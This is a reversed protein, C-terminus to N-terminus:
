SQPMAHPLVSGAADPIVPRGEALNVLRAFAYITSRRGKGPRLVTLIGQDVLADLARQVSGRAIGLGAAFDPGSAIPREFLRDLMPLAHARTAKAVAPKMAEYLDLISRAVKSNARAQEAIGTLFFRIWANWDGARSIAQLREYYVDRQRELYSSLYFDPSALVQKDFLFLPILMRGVRGNGDLYPHILEFQAHVVALQVLPDREDGHLYREWNALLGSVEQPPPPIYSAQEIPSGPRGLHNQVNRICGPTKFQGRVDKLLLEHVENILRLSLPLTPLRQVAHRMASRYNLVENIDDRKEASIAQEPDAAFELVEGLTAQTGEIRSSLVAEQTTLPSLLVAPNPIGELLGAYRALDRNAQGLLPVFGAWDLDSLPLSLPIFPNM